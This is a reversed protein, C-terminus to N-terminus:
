ITQTKKGSNRRKKKPKETEAGRARIGLPPPRPLLLPLVVGGGVVANRDGDIIGCAIWANMRVEVMRRVEWTWIM